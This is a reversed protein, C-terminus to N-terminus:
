RKIHKGALIADRTADHEQLQLCHFCVAHCMCLIYRSVTKPMHLVNLATTQSRQLWPTTLYLKCIHSMCCLTFDVWPKASTQRWSVRLWVMLACERQRRGPHCRRSWPWSPLKASVTHVSMYRLPPLLLAFKADVKQQSQICRCIDSPPHLLLAFKADVKQQSQICQCIDSPPHLLLAFKADVKQQSQICRCIDSPPPTFSSRVQCGCKASVTHVSMYRLPRTFSSRVQCGSKSLSVNAEQRPGWKSYHVPM